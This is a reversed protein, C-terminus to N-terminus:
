FRANCQNRIQTGAGLGRQLQGVVPHPGLGGPVYHM